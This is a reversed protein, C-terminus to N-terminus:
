ANVPPVTARAPTSAPTAITTAAVGAGIQRYTQPDCRMVVARILGIIIVAAFTSPWMSLWGSGPDVGLLVPLNQLTVVLGGAM